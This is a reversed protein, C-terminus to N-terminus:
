KYILRRKLHFPTFKFLLSLILLNNGIFFTTGTLIDYFILSYSNDFFYTIMMIEKEKKNLTLNIYTSLM